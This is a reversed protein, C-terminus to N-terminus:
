IYFFDQFLFVPFSQLLLIYFTAPSVTLAGRSNQPQPYKVFLSWPQRPFCDNLISIDNRFHFYKRSKCRCLRLLGCLAYTAVHTLLSFDVTCQTQVAQIWHQKWTTDQLIKLYYHTMDTSSNTALLFPLCKRPWLHSHSYPQQNSNNHLSRCCSPIWLCKWTIQWSRHFLSELAEVKYTGTNQWGVPKVGPKDM